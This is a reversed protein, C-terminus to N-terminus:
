AAAGLGRRELVRRLARIVEADYTEVDATLHQLASRASLHPGGTETLEVFDNAVKLIQSEIPQNRDASGPLKRHDRVIQSVRELYATKGILAASAEAVQEEEGTGSVSEPADTADSFFLWGVDHLLSAFELDQVENDGLGQERAIATAIDAVRLGHGEPTHGTLEPVRSLARVTQVYTKHISAYRKFAYRAALLPMLFLPFTLWGFRPYAIGMLAAVSVFAGHLSVRNRLQGMWMHGLPVHHANAILISSAGTDLLLELFAAEVMFLTLLLEQNAGPLSPMVLATMWRFILYSVLTAGLRRSTSRFRPGIGVQPAKYLVGVLFGSLLIMLLEAPELVMFLAFIIASSVPTSRGGKIDVELVEGLAVMFAAVVVAVWDDPRFGTVSIQWALACAAIAWISGSILPAPFWKSKM